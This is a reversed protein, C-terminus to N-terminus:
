SISRHRVSIKSLSLQTLATAGRKTISNESVDLAIVKTLPLVRAFSLAGEDSISNDRLYLRLIETRPLVDVLATVGEDSIRGKVIGLSILQTLPLVRSLAILGRDGINYSRLYLTTLHSHPLAEALIVIGDDDISHSALTLIALQAFPLAKALATVGLNTIKNKFLDLEILQSHPLAKALATTGLDGIGNGSLELLRMQTHPLAEALAIAGQDGISNGELYLVQIKTHPLVQALAKAEGPRLYGLKLDLETIQSSPLVPTFAKAESNRLAELAIKKLNPCYFPILRFLNVRAEESWFLDSFSLEEIGEGNALLCTHIAWLPVMSRFYVKKRLDPDQSIQTFYSNCKGLNHRDKPELLFFIRKWIDASKLAGYDPPFVPPTNRIEIVVEKSRSICSNFYVQLFEFQHAQLSHNGPELVVKKESLVVRTYNLLGLRTVVAQAIIAIHDRARKNEIFLYTPTAKLQVAQAM